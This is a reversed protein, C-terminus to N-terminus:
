RRPEPVPVPSIWGAVTAGGPPQAASLRVSARAGTVLVTDHVASLRAGPRALQVLRLRDVHAVRGPQGAPPAALRLRLRVRTAGPAPVARLVVPGGRRPVAVPLVSTSLPAGRAQDFWDLEVTLRAGPSAQVDLGVAVAGGEEPLLLRRRLSVLSSARADQQAVLRLGLAGDTAADPALEASGRLQVLHGGPALGVDLDDFSGTALLDRGHTVAGSGARGVPSWGPALTSLGPPLVAPVEAARVPGGPVPEAGDPTAVGTGRPAGVAARGVLSAPGGVAGSPTHDHRYLPEVRARVVQEGTVDVVLAAGPGDLDELLPWLGEAVLGATPGARDARVASLEPARSGLAVLAGAQRAARLLRRTLDPPQYGFPGSGHVQVVVQRGTAREGEVAARLREEDCPAVGPRGVGALLLPVQSLPDPEGTSCALFSWPRGAAELRAPAWADDVDRGAGFRPLGAEELVDLTELVGEPGLDSVHSGAVDVADVGAQRLARALAPRSAYTGPADPLGPDSLAPGSAPPASRPLPARRSLVTELRVVALDVGELFPRVGRLLRAHDDVDPSPPLVADDANGDSDRDQMRRAAMVDGGLLLSVTGEAPTLRVLVPAGARATQTRPVHGEAQARLLVPGDAVDVRFAGDPGSETEVDGLRVRAGALPRGLLDTVRGATPLTPRRLALDDDSGRPLATCAPLLLVLLLVALPRRM